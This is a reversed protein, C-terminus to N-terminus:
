STEFFFLVDYLGNKQERKRKKYANKNHEFFYLNIGM